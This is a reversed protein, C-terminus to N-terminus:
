GTTRAEGCTGIISTPWGARVDDNELSDSTSTSKIRRSIKRKLMSTRRLKWDASLAVGSPWQRRVIVMTGSENAGLRNLDTSEPRDVPRRNTISLRRGDAWVDSFGLVSVGSHHRDKRERTSVPALPPTRSRCGM